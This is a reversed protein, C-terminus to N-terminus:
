NADYELYWDGEIHRYALIYNQGKPARYADLDDVLPVPHAPKYMFAKSAGSAAMGTAWSLVVVSGSVPDYEFGHYRDIEGFLKPDIEKFFQRYREKSDSQLVLPSPKEAIPSAIATDAQLHRMVTEIAQKHAQFGSILEADTPKPGGYFAGFVAYAIVAVYTIGGIAVLLILWLLIRAGLLKRDL